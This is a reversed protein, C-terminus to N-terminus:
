FPVSDDDAPAGEEDDKKAAKKESPKKATEKGKAAESRSRMKKEEAPPKGHEILKGTKPDYKAGCKSCETDELKMPAKCDDCGIEEDEKESKEDADEEDEEEEDSDADSEEEEEGEEEEEEEEAEDKKSAKKSANKEAAAEEEAAKKARAAEAADAKAWAETQEKSPFLEDWPIITEHNPLVCRRELSARITQQNFPVTLDDPLEPVAEGRILELIRGTPRQKRLVTAKYKKQFNKEKEFYEWQMCYPQTQIDIDNKELEAEMVEKVKEGLLGAEVAIQVGNDPHNNDVVFMAYQCKANANQKWAHKPSIKAAKMDAKLADSLDDRGFINCIGGVHITTTEDPEDGEFHFLPTVASIGQPKKADRTEEFLKSQQFCWEILKCIGCREPPRKREGTEKDRQYQAELVDSDEHCVLNKSWVHTVSEKTDRDEKVVLQPISHRYVAVPMEKTHFWVDISGKEKWKSLFKGGGGTKHKAFSRTSGFRQAGRAM